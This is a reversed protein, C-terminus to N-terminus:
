RSSRAQDYSPLEADDGGWGGNLRGVHGEVRWAWDNGEKWKFLSGGFNVDFECQGEVGIAAYVDHKARPVYVGTFADLLRRGNYTFFVANRAFDYGCGFTDGSQVSIHKLLPDYDRGGDSDEFFKCMDDLHLGASLRHWGPYRWNPYPRCATGLAIIGDMRHIMVEFYVGSKGQVDYLGALIPLNSELYSEKCPADTTVKVVSAGGKEGGIDIRGRFRDSNTWLSWAGCGEANIREVIDSPLLRPPDVPWRDCYDKAWAFDIDSAENYLGLTHSREPAPVWGPPPGSPAQFQNSGSQKQKGKDKRHNFIGM